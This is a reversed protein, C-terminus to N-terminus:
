RCPRDVPPLGCDTREQGTARRWEEVSGFTAAHWPIELPGGTSCCNNAYFLVGDSAASGSVCPVGPATMFINNMIRIGAPTGQGVVIGAPHGAASSEVFVANDHIDTAALDGFGHIAGYANKRGDNQSVNYRIVNRGFPRARDYQALLFGAGDNDHSYNYQLVSNTVGGDLDFGGGDFSGGTRNAYSENHQIVVDNSDHAWIGVPGGELSNSLAGNDFAVCREVLAHDVDSLIIGSGSHAREKGPIGPNSYATVFRLVVKEHAYARSTESWDGFITIGSRANHHVSVHEILIDRFGSKDVLGGIAIGDGTFGSVEVRDIRVYALRVNGALGNRIAIGSDIPSGRGGGVVNLNAIRFGGLNRILVASGSAVRITARGSGFSGIVIPRDPSGASDGGLCLPGAFESGAQLLLRDGPGFRHQSARELSRWAAEPSTGPSGDHGDASVYYDAPSFL